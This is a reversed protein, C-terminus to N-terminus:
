WNRPMMKDAYGALLPTGTNNTYRFYGEATADAQSGSSHFWDSGLRGASVIKKNRCLSEYEADTYLGVGGAWANIYTHSSGPNSSTVRIRWFHFSANNWSTTGEAARNHYFKWSKTGANTQSQENYGGYDWAGTTWNYYYYEATWKGTRFLVSTVKHEIVFSPASVYLYGNWDSASFTSAWSAPFSAKTILQGSSAM